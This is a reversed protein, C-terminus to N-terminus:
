SAPTKLSDRLTKSHNVDFRMAGLFNTEGFRVEDELKLGEVIRVWRVLKLKLSCKSNLRVRPFM